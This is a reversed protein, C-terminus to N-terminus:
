LSLYREAFFSKMFDLLQEDDLGDAEKRLADLSDRFEQTHTFAEFKEAKYREFEDGSLKLREIVLGEAIRLVQYREYSSGYGMHVYHTVEGDPVILAGSYWKAVVPTPASPFIEALISKAVYDGPETGPMRVTADELVLQDDAIAWAATYGRWNASSIVADKPPKWEKAALQSDLPNTNLAHDVNDIRIRDPMQATALAMAPAFLAIIFLAPRLIRLFMM